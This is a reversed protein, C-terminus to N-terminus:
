TAGNVSKLEIQECARGNIFHLTNTPPAPCQGFYSYGDTVVYHYPAGDNISSPNLLMFKHSIDKCPKDYWTGSEYIYNHHYWKQFKPSDSYPSTTQNCICDFGNYLVFSSTPM